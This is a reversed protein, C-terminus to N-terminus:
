RRRARQAAPAGRRPPCRAAATPATSAESRGWAARAPPARRSPPSTCRATATLRGPRPARRPPAPLKPGLRRGAPAAAAAVARGQRGRRPGGQRAGCGMQGSVFLGGGVWGGGVRWGWGGAGDRAVLGLQEVEVQWHADGADAGAAAADRAVGVEHACPEVERPRNYDDPGARQVRRDAKICDHQHLVAAGRRAGCRPAARARHEVGRAQPAREVLEHARPEGHHAPAAPTQTQTPSSSTTAAPTSPAAASAPASAPTFPCACPSSGRERLALARAGGGAARGPRGLQKQSGRVSAGGGVGRGGAELRDHLVLVRGPSAVARALHGLNHGGRLGLQQLAQHVLGLDRSAAAARRGRPPRNNTPPPAPADPALTPTPACGEQVEWAHGDRDAVVGAQCVWWAVRVDGM